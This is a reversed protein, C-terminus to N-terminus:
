QGVARSRARNRRKAASNQIGGISRLLTQSDFVHRVTAIASGEITLISVGYVIGDSDEGLSAEPITWEIARHQETRIDRTVNVVVHPYQSHFEDQMELYEDRTEGCSEGNVLVNVDWALCEVDSATGRGVILEDWTTWLDHSTNM